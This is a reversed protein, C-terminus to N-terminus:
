IANGVVGVFVRAPVASSPNTLFLSGLKGRMSLHGPQSARQFTSTVASAASAPVPTLDILPAASSGLQVQVHDFAIVIVSAAPSVSGFSFQQSTASPALTVLGSQVQSATTPDTDDFTIRQDFAEQLQDADFTCLARLDVFTRM